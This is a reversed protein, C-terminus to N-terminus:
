RLILCEEIRHDLTQEDEDQTQGEADRKGTKQLKSQESREDEEPHERKILIKWTTLIESLEFHIIEGTHRQVGIQDPEMYAGAAMGTRRMHTVKGRETNGRWEYAIESGEDTEQILESIEEENRERRRRKEESEEEEAEEGEQDESTLDSGGEKTSKKRKASKAEPEETVKCKCRGRGGVCMSGAHEECRTDPPEKKCGWAKTTPNSMCGKFGCTQTGLETRRKGEREEEANEEPQRKDVRRARSTNATEYGVVDENEWLNKLEVPRVEGLWASEFRKTTAIRGVLEDYTETGKQKRAIERADRLFQEGM